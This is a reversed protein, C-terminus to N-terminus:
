KTYVLNTLNINRISGEIITPITNYFSCVFEIKKKLELDIRLPKTIIDIM